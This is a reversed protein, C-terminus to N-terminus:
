RTLTCFSTMRCRRNRRTFSVRAITKSLNSRDSLASTVGTTRIIQYKVRALTRQKLKMQLAREGCCVLTRRPYQQYGLQIGAHAVAWPDMKIRGKFSICFVNMFIAVKVDSHMSIAGRNILRGVWHYLRWAFNGWTSILQNHDPSLMPKIFSLWEHKFVMMYSDHSQKITGLWRFVAYAKRRCKVRCTRRRLTLTNWM